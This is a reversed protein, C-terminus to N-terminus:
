LRARRIQSPISCLRILRTWSWACLTPLAPVCLCIGSYRQVSVLSGRGMNLRNPEINKKVKIRGAQGGSATIEYDPNDAAIQSSTGNVNEYWRINTLEHNISGSPLVADKDIISVNPQIILPTLSYDPTYEQTDANYNQKDPVSGEVALSIQVQLARWNFDFRRTKM